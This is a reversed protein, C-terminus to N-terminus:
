RVEKVGAILTKRRAHSRVSIAKGRKGDPPCRNVSKDSCSAGRLAASMGETAIPLRLRTSTLARTRPVFLRAPDLDEGETSWDPRATAIRVLADGDLIPGGLAEIARRAGSSFDGALAALGPRAGLEESLAILGDPQRSELAQAQTKVECFTMADGSFFVLDSM